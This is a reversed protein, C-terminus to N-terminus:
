GTPPRHAMTHTVPMKGNKHAQQQQELHIQGVNHGRSDIRPNPDHLFANAREATASADVSRIERCLSKEVRGANEKNNQAKAHGEDALKLWARMATSYHQRELARMGAEFQSAQAPLLGLLSGIVFLFKVWKVIVLM